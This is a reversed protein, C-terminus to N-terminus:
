RREEFGWRQRLAEARDDLAAQRDRWERRIRRMNREIEALQIASSDASDPTYVPLDPNRPALTM